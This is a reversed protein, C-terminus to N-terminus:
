RIAFTHDALKLSTTDVIEFDAAGLQKLQALEANKWGSSNEGTLHWPQSCTDTLIAGHTRLADVMARAQGTFRTRDVTSKLRAWAGMPLEGSAALKGDSSTAPWVHSTAIANSCFATVHRVSGANVEDVRFAQGIMPTNPSNTTFKPPTTSNLSYKAGSNATHIGVKGLIPDYQILEYATCDAIDIILLHRDWAAGPYGELRPDAPIPVKGRYEHPSVSLTYAVNKFGTVRSDVVNIPIGTSSGEWVTSSPTSVKSGRTRHGSLWEDSRPHVPLRDINTANRYHDAPFIDCGGVNSASAAAKFSIPGAPVPVTTPTAGGPPVVGITTSPANPAPPVPRVVKAPSPITTADDQAEDGPGPACAAGLAAVAAIVGIAIRRSPRTRRENRLQM